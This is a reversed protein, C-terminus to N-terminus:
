PSGKSRLPSKTLVVRPKAPQDTPSQEPPKGNKREYFYIGATALVNTLILATLGIEEFGFVRIGKSAPVSLLVAAALGKPMMISMLMKYPKTRPYLASFAEVIARRSVFLAVLVAMSLLAIPGTIAGIDLIVGTYVFFFTRIFFSIETHFVKLPGELSLPQQNGNTLRQLQNSSGLILGFALVAIAGNAKVAEVGAYLIFLASLTLMYGFSKEHLYSLAKIWAFGAFIGAVGAIAFAG